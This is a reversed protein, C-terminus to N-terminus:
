AVSTPTWSRELIHSYQSYIYRLWVLQPIHQRSLFDEEFKGMFINGLETCMKYGYNNGIDTQLIQRQVQLMNKGPHFTTPTFTDM